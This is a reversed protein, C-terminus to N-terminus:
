TADVREIKRAAATTVLDITHLRVVRPEPVERFRLECTSPIGTACGNQLLGNLRHVEDATAHQPEALV